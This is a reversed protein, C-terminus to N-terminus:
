TPLNYNTLPPPLFAVLVGNIKVHLNDVLVPPILSGDRSSAFLYPPQYARFIPRGDQTALVCAAPPLHGLNPDVIVYDGPMMRLSSLATTRIIWLEAGHLRKTNATFWASVAAPISSLDGVREGEIAPADDKVMANVQTPASYTLAEPYHNGITVAEGFLISQATVNVGMGRFKRAYKEADDQGITRSGTEHTRYTSEAWKNSLAAERASRYGALERAKKLRAGQAKHIEDNSM